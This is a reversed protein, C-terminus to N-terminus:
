VKITEGVILNLEDNNDAKYEFAVKYYIEKKENKRDPQIEPQSNGTSSGSTAGPQSAVHSTSTSVAVPQLNSLLRTASLSRIRDVKSPNEKQYQFTM